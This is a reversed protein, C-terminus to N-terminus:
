PHVQDAYDGVPTASHASHDNLIHNLNADFGAIHASVLKTGAPKIVAPAKFYLNVTDQSGNANVTLAGYTISAAWPGAAATSVQAGNLGEVHFSVNTMNLHGNNAIRIQFSSIENINVAGATAPPVPAKDVITLVVSDKPYTTVANAFDDFFAM